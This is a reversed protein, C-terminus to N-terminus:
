EAAHILLVVYQGLKSVSHHGDKAIGLHRSRWRLAIQLEARHLVQEALSTERRTHALTALHLVAGLGVPGRDDARVHEQKSVASTADLVLSSSPPRAHHAGVRDLTGGGSCPRGWRPSTP